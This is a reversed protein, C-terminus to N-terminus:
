HAKCWALWEAGSQFSMGQIIRYDFDTTMTTITYASAGLRMSKTVRAGGLDYQGSSTGDPNVWSSNSKLLNVKPVGNIMAALYGDCGQIVLDDVTTEDVVTPYDEIPTSGILLGTEEHNSVTPRILWGFLNGASPEFRYFMKLNKLYCHPVNGESSDTLDWNTFIKFSDHGNAYVFMAPKGRASDCVFPPYKSQVVDQLFGQGNTTTYRSFVVFMYPRDADTGIVEAEAECTFIQEQTRAPFYNTSTM